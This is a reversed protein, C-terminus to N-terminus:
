PRDHKLSRKDRRLWLLFSLIWLLLATQLAILAWRVALPLPLVLNALLIGFSLLACVNNLLARRSLAIHKRVWFVAREHGARAEDLTAYHHEQGDLYGGSIHTAFLIPDHGGDNPPFSLQDIGVFSTSVLVRGWSLRLRALGPLVACRTEAVRRNDFNGFWKAWRFFAQQDMEGADNWVQVPVPEGDELIYHKFAPMM